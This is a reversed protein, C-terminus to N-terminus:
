FIKKATIKPSTLDTKSLNLNPRIKKASNSNQLISGLIFHLRAMFNFKGRFLGKFANQLCPSWIPRIKAWKAITQKLFNKFILFTAWM